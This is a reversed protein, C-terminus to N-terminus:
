AEWVDDKDTSINLLQISSLMQGSNWHDNISLALSCMISSSAYIINKLSDGLKQIDIIELTPNTPSEIFFTKTNPKLANEWEDINGGDVLTAEVGFKPLITEIVYRCSGFLARAAIIHDGHKLQCLLAANVAAMGSATAIAREAGELEAIREELMTTTPNAYRSYIYGEEEGAFRQQASEANEYLFGQTLYLTESTEGHQSRNSGSHILKTDQKWQPNIIKKNNNKAM